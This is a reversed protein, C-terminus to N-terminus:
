TSLWGWTKLKEIRQEVDYGIDRRYQVDQHIIINGVTRYVRKRAENITSGRATACGIVGDVGALRPTNNTFMVDSLMLHKWAAQPVDLVQVGKLNPLGNGNTNPYPPVSLRVAIGYDDWFKVGLDQTTFKWFMDFVNGKYLEVLAQIADYGFRTTFELFYIEDESLICNVDIPGLYNVKRLLPALPLLAKQVILDKSAQTMWVVNGMCGTQCGRDGEMFRKYEITHNFM